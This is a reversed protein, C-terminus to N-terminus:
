EALHETPLEGTLLIRGVHLCCHLQGVALSLYFTGIPVNLGPMMQDWTRAMLQSGYFAVTGFLILMFVANFRNVASTSLFRIKTLDFDMGVHANFRFALPIALFIIVIFALRPVDNGWDLSDNLGYRYVVQLVLTASLVAMAVIVVYGVVRDCSALVRDYARMWAPPAPRGADTADM